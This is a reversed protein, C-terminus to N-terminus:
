TESAPLAGELELLWRKLALGGGYGTLAGDSGLVRHCPVVIAVPNQGNAAGVARVARPQGIAVAVQRYSRIEGYEIAQLMEWVRLQFPTGRLDLPLTFRRRQGAFYEALQEAVPSSGGQYPVLRTGPFWRRAWGERLGDPEGPLRLAALGRPTHLVWLLGCPSPITEVCAIEDM